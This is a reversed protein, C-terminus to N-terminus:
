MQLHVKIGCKDKAEAEEDVSVAEAEVAEVTEEEEAELDEVNNL